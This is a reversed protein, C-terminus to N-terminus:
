RSNHRDTIAPLGRGAMMLGPAAPSAADGSPGCRLPPVAGTQRPSDRPAGPTLRGPRTRAASRMDRRIGRFLEDRARNARRNAALDSMAYARRARSKTFDPIHLKNLLAAVRHNIYESGHVSNLAPHISLPAQRCRAIQTAVRAAPENGILDCPSRLLPM